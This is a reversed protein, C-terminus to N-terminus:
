GLSAAYLPVTWHRFNCCQNWIQMPKRKEVRYIHSCAHAHSSTSAIFVHSGCIHTTPFSNNIGSGGREFYGTIKPCTGQAARNRLRRLCFGLGTNLIRCTSPSPVNQRWTQCPKRQTELPSNWRPNGRCSSWPAEQYWSNCQSHMLSACFLCRNLLDDPM